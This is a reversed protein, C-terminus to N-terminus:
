PVLRISDVGRISQGSFTEGLLVAETADSAFQLDQTKFHLVLDVLGDRDADQINSLPTGARGQTVVHAGELTVSAPDVTTASFSATSLIAILVTGNSRRSITNHPDGPRIDIRVGLFPKYLETTSLFIDGGILLVEGNSLLHATGTRRFNTHGVFTFTGNLPNYIDVAKEDFHHDGCCAGVLLVNGDLLRIAVHSGRFTNMSGAFEFAGTQPNYLEASDGSMGGAVLIKGSSLPTATHGARPYAMGGTSIFTSTRPDFLEATALYEDEVRDGIIWADVGGAVLVQGNTLLTASHGGRRDTMDPLVSFTGTIPDFIEASSHTPFPQGRIPQEATGGTILVRGDLLLVAQHGARPTTMSGTPSYTGTRPDFMEASSLFQLGNYGGTILVSGDRLLTAKPGTRPTTTSATWHFTGTAPDYIEAQALGKAPDSSFHAAGGVVLVRGDQLTVAAHNERFLNTDAALEFPGSHAEHSASPDYIESKVFSGQSTSGSGM